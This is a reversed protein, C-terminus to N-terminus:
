HEILVTLPKFLQFTVRRVLQPVEVDTTSGLKHREIRTLSALWQPDYFSKPLGHVCHRNSKPTSSLLQSGRPLARNGRKLTGTSANYTDLNTFLKNLKDHRWQLRARQVVKFPAGAEEDTHDSSMGAVELQELIEEIKDWLAPSSGKNANIIQARRM